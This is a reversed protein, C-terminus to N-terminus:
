VLSRSPVLLSECQQAELPRMLLPAGAACGGVAQATAQATATAAAQAAATASGANRCGMRTDEHCIRTKLCWGGGGIVNGPAVSQQKLLVARSWPPEATAQLRALEGVGCTGGWWWWRQVPLGREQGFRRGGGNCVSAAAEAIATATAESASNIARSSTTIIIQVTSAVGQDVAAAAAAANGSSLDDPNVTGGSGNSMADAVATASAGQECPHSLPM